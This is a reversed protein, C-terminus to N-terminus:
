AHALGVESIVYRFKGSAPRPIPSQRQITVDVNGLVKRFGALITKDILQAEAANSPHPDIRVEIREIGTQVIQFERIGQMERLVYILALAHVKRGDKTLLFDTSRGEVAALVPLGRGCPCPAPDIRGLDGTRYRLLPYGVNRLHTTVIEGSQGLPLPMGQADVIEVLIDEATIHLRGHPCEHAIFGADRAGYGNAVPCGFANSIAERQHPYLQEATVFVVNVGLDNLAIRRAAAHEAILAIASPYGFVIRPRVAQLTACYRDLSAEGMDFAPLLRSRFLHDRLQRIRDQRGLEHPAGWVVMERDGFTVDWWEFSRLKAAVDHSVRERTLFFRLPAGTSGGTNSAQMPLDRDSALMKAHARITDKDLTPLQALDRPTIAAPAVGLERFLARYYPVHTAIEELLGALDRAQWEALEGPSWWQSQQLGRLAAMTTHRKLREQLPFLGHRVLYCKIADMTSRPPFDGRTPGTTTANGSM